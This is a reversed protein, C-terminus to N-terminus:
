VRFVSNLLELTQYSVVAGFYRKDNWWSYTIKSIKIKNFNFNVLVASNSVIVFHCTNLWIDTGESFSYKSGRM